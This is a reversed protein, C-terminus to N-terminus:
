MHFHSLKGALHTYKELFCNIILKNILQNIPKNIVARIGGAMLSPSASVLVGM